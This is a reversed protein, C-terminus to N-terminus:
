ILTRHPIKEDQTDVCGARENSISCLSPKQRDAAAQLEGHSTLAARFATGRPHQQQIPDNFGADVSGGAPTGFDPVTQM